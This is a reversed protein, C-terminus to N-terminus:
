AFSLMHCTARVIHVHVHSQAMFSRHLQAMFSLTHCTVCMIRFQVHSVHCNNRAAGGSVFIGHHVSRWTENAVNPQSPLHLKESGCCIRSTSRGIRHCPLALDCACALPADRLATLAWWVLSLVSFQTAYQYPSTPWTSDGRQLSAVNSERTRSQLNLEKTVKLRFVMNSWAKGDATKCKVVWGHKSPAFCMGV